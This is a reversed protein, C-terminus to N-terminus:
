CIYINKLLYLSGLSFVKRMDVTFYTCVSHFIIYINIYIYLCVCLCVYM